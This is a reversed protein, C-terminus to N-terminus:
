SVYYDAIYGSEDQRDHSWTEWVSTRAQETYTIFEYNYPAYLTRNKMSRDNLYKYRYLSESPNPITTLLASFINKYGIEEANLYTELVTINQNKNLAIRMAEIVLVARWDVNVQSNLLESYRQNTHRFILKLKRLNIQYEKTELLANVFEELSAVYNLKGSEVHVGLAEKTFISEIFKKSSLVSPKYEIFLDVCKYLSERLVEDKYAKDSIPSIVIIKKNSGTIQENNKLFYNLTELFHIGDAGSRDVDEAVIYIVKENVSLLVDALIRELEYARKAPSRGFIEAAKNSVKTVGNAIKPDFSIKSVDVTPLSDGFQGFFEDVIGGWKGIISKNGDIKRETQKEIGIQKALEIILGDWLGKREPYRWADFQFWKHNIDKDNINARYLTTSKGTGYAGVLAVISSEEIQNLEDSLKDTAFEVLSDNVRYDERIYKADNLLKM